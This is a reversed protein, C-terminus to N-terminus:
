PLHRFVVVGDQEYVVEFRDTAQRYWDLNAACCKAESLGWYLYDIGLQELRASVDITQPAEFLPRVLETRAQVLNEQDSSLYYRAFQPDGLATRREGFVPILSYVDEEARYYPRISAQGAVGSQVVAEVPLATRMWAAARLEAASLYSVLASNRVNVQVWEFALLNPIASACFLLVVIWQKKRQMIGSDLLTDLAIGALPLVALRLIVGLKQSVEWYPLGHSRLFSVFVFSLGLLWLLARAGERQPQDWAPWLKRFQWLGALAFVFMPGLMVLFHVPLLWWYTGFFLFWANGVDLIMVLLQLVAYTALGTLGLLIGSLMTGALPRLGPRAWGSRQWNLLDIGAQWLLLTGGWLFSFSVLFFSFGSSLLLLLGAALSREARQDMGPWSLLDIALMLGVLAGLHQPLYLLLQYFYGVPPLAIAGLWTGELAWHTPLVSILAKFPAQYSEAALMLGVALALSEPRRIFRRLWHALVFVLSINLLMGNLLFVDELLMNMGGLQYVLAPAVIQFWYYHLTEGLFYPNQPPFAQRAMEGGFALNRLFDRNFYPAYVHGEGVPQGTISFPIVVILLILVLGLSIALRTSAPQPNAWERLPRPHLKLLATLVLAGIAAAGLLAAPALKGMWAALPISLFTTLLLGLIAVHGAAEVRRAFISGYLFRVALWGPVAMIALALSFSLTAQWGAFLFGSLWLLAALAGPAYPHSLWGALRNWARGMWELGVMIRNM